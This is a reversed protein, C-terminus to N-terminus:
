SSKRMETFGGLGEAGMQYIMSIYVLLRAENLYPLDKSFALLDVEIIRKLKLQLVADAEDRTIYTFGFGFTPTGICRYGSRIREGTADDYVWSRFGEDTKIRKEAEQSIRTENEEIKQDIITLDVITNNLREVILKIKERRSSKSDLISEIVMSTNRVVHCLGNHIIDGM